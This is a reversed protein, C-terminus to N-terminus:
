GTLAMPEGPVPWMVAATMAPDALERQLEERPQAFHSWGEHHVPVVVRPRLERCLAVADAGTMSYRLPGTAPFRVGGLHLVAIGVDIRRAVHRVGPFLVTDGSVWLAGGRQGEWQLAFGVVEGVIPRSGPPGHRCPTATVVLDPRGPATLRTSEWARLGRAGDGLRAAAPRTTLVTRGPLLERGADDLNDAHQDHSILVVDAVVSGAFLAPGTTKTSSTGWGFRYTRGPADFTPDTLVRWGAVDLLTTPGGVYTLTVM